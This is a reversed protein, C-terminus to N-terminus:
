VIKIHIEPIVRRAVHRMYHNQVNRKKKVKNSVSPKETVENEILQCFDNGEVEKNRNSSLIWVSRDTHQVKPGAIGKKYTM